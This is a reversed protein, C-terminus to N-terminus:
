DLEVIRADLEGENEEEIVTDRRKGRASSIGFAAAALAPTPPPPPITVRYQSGHVPYMPMLHCRKLHPQIHSFFHADFGCDNFSRQDPASRYIHSFVNILCSVCSYPIEIHLVGSGSGRVRPLKTAIAAQLEESAGQPKPRHSCTSSMLPHSMYSVDLVPTHARSSDAPPIVAMRNLILVMALLPRPLMRSLGAIAFEVVRVGRAYAKFLRAVTVRLFRAEQDAPLGRPLKGSMERIDSRIGEVAAIEEDTVAHRLALLAAHQDLRGLKGAEYTDSHDANCAIPSFYYDAELVIPSLEKTLALEVTGRRPQQVISKIVIRCPLMTVQMNGGVTLAVSGHTLATEEEGARAITARAQSSPVSLTLTISDATEIASIAPLLPSSTPLIMGNNYCAFRTAVAYKAVSSTAETRSGATVKTASVSALPVRQEDTAACRAAGHDFRVRVDLDGPCTEVIFRPVCVSVRVQDVDVDGGGDHFPKITLSHFQHVTSGCAIELVMASLPNMVLSRDVLGEVRYLRTDGATEGVSISFGHLQAHAFIEAASSALSSSASIASWLERVDPWPTSTLALRLLCGPSLLPRRVALEKALQVLTDILFTSERLAIPVTPTALRYFTFEERSRGGRRMVQSTSWALRSVHTAWHHDTPRKLLNVGLLTPFAELPLGTVRRLFDLRSASISYVHDTYTRIVSRGQEWHTALLPSAHVLLNLLGCVDMLNGTEIVNFRLQNSVHQNQHWPFRLPQPPHELQKHSTLKEMIEIPGGAIFAIRCLFALVPPDQQEKWRLVPVMPDPNRRREHRRDGCPGFAEFLSDVYMSLERHMSGNVDQPEVQFVNLPSFAFPASFSLTGDSEALLMTPNVDLDDRDCLEDTANFLFAGNNLLSRVEHELKAKQEGSPFKDGYTRRANAMFDDITIQVHDPGDDGDGRAFFNSREQALKEASWDCALWAKWCQRVVRLTPVDLVFVPVNERTWEANLCSRMQEFWYERTSPELLLSYYLQGIHRTLASKDAAGREAVAHLVLLNRALVEPHTDSLVFAFDSGRAYKRKAEDITRSVNRLDGCQFLLADIRQFGRPDHYLFLDRSYSRGYPYYPDALEDIAFTPSPDTAAATVPETATGASAQPDVVTAPKGGPRATAQRQNPDEGQFGPADPDCLWVFERKWKGSAWDEVWQPYTPPAWRGRAIMRYEYRIDPQIDPALALSVLFASTAAEIVARVRAPDPHQDALDLMAPLVSVVQMHDSPTLMRLQKPKTLKAFEIVIVAGFPMNQARFSLRPSLRRPPAGGPREEYYNSPESFLMGALMDPILWGRTVQSVLMSPTVRCSFFFRPGVPAAYFKVFVLLHDVTYRKVLPKPVSPSGSILDDAPDATTMCMAPTCVIRLVPPSTSGSAPLEAGNGAAAFANSLQSKKGKTKSLLKAEFAAKASGWTTDASFVATYHAPYTDSDLDWIGPGAYMGGLSIVSVLNVHVVPADPLIGPMAM